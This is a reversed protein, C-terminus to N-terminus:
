FVNRLGTFEAARHANIVEPDQEFRQVVRGPEEAVEALSIAHSAMVLLQRSCNLGSLGVEGRGDM